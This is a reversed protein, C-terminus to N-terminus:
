LVITVSHSATAVMKIKSIDSWGLEWWGHSRQERVESNFHLRQVFESEVYRRSKRLQLGQPVSYGNYHHYTTLFSSLVAKRSPLVPDESTQSLRNRNETRKTLKGNLNRVPASLQRVQRSEASTRMSARFLQTRQRHSTDARRGTKFDFLGFTSDTDVSLMDNNTQTSILWESAEWTSGM